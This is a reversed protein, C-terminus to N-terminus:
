VAKVRSTSPQSGTLRWYSPSNREVSIKSTTCGVRPNLASFMLDTGVVVGMHQGTWLVIDGVAPTYVRSSFNLAVSRFTATTFRPGSWLKLDTLARWVLGSCDYAGPGETGLVYRNNAITALRKMESILDSGAQTTAADPVTFTGFTGASGGSDLTSAVGTSFVSGRRGTVDSLATFDGRLLATALDRSDTALSTARGVMVQRLMVSGVAIMGVGVTEMGPSKV